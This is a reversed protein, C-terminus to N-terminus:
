VDRHEARERAGSVLEEVKMALREYEALSHSNPNDSQKEARYRDRDRDSDRGRERDRGAREDRERRRERDGGSTRYSRDRDNDRDDDYRSRHERSDRDRGRSGKDRMRDRDSDRNRERDRDRDYDRRESRSSERERQQQERVQDNVIYETRRPPAIPAPANSAVASANDSKGAAAAVISKPPEPLSDIAKRRLALMDVASPEAAARGAPQKAAVTHQLTADTGIDDTGFFESALNATGASSATASLVTPAAATDDDDDAFIARFLDIEPRAMMRASEDDEPLAAEALQDAGPSPPREAQEPEPADAASMPPPSAARFPPPSAGRLVAEFGSLRSQPQSASSATAGLQQSEATAPVPVNFRKCLIRSPQWTAEDRTAKGYKGLAAATRFNADPDAAVSVPEAFQRGVTSGKADIMGATTFRKQMMTASPRAFMHASREFENRDTSQIWDRDNGDAIAMLFKEYRAQKPKDDIYPPTGFIGARLAEIMRERDAPPMFSMLRQSPAVPVVAPERVPPAAAAAVPGSVSSTRAAVAQAQAGAVPEGLLQAREAATVPKRYQESQRQGWPLEGGAAAAQAAAVATPDAKVTPKPQWGKPIVPPKFILDPALVVAALSFGSLPPLGDSCRRADPPLEIVRGAAAAAAVDLEDTEM